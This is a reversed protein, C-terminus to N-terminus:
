KNSRLKTYPSAKIEGKGPGAGRIFKRVLFFKSKVNKFYYKIKMVMLARPMRGWRLPDEEMGETLPDDPAGVGRGNYCRPRTEGSTM